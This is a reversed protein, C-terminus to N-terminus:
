DATINYFFAIPAKALGDFDKKRVLNICQSKREETLIEAAQKSQLQLDMEPKM